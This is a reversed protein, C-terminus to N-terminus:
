RTKIQDTDVLNHIVTMASDYLFSLLQIKKDKSLKGQNYSRLAEESTKPLIYNFAYDDNEEQM